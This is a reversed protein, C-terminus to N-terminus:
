SRPRRCMYNRAPNLWYLMGQIEVPKQATANAADLAKFLDQAEEREAVSYEEAPPFQSRKWDLSQINYPLPKAPQQAVGNRAPPPIGGQKPSMPSAPAPKSAPIWMQSKLANVRNLVMAEVKEMFEEPDAATPVDIKICYDGREWVGDATPVTIGRTVEIRTPQSM